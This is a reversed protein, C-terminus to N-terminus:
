RKLVVVINVICVLIPSLVPYIPKNIFTPFNSFDLQESFIFVINDTIAPYLLHSIIRCFAYKTKFGISKDKIARRDKEPGRHNLQQNAKATM